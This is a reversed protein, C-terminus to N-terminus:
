LLSNLKNILDNDWLNKGVIDGNRDIIYNSPLNRINYTNILVSNLGTPDNVSVWPIKQSKVMSIWNPVNEDLTVQYIELGKESYLEYIERLYKNLFKTSEQKPDWMVLMIVKGQLDSLNTTDGAINNLSIDPYGVTIDSNIADSYLNNMNEINEQRKITKRLRSVYKSNPYTVHLSDALLKFYQLDTNETFIAIGNPFRQQLAIVSALSKSNLVLFKINEQKQKLYLAAISQSIESRTVASIANHYDKNLALIKDYNNSLRTNLEKVLESDKSGKVTYNNSLNLLSNLEIKENPSVVLIIFDKKHRIRLFVPNTKEGFDYSLEFEGNDDTRTSDVFLAMPGHVEEIIINKNKIGAFKGEITAQNSSCSIFALSIIM